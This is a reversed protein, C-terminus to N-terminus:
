LLRSWELCLTYLPTTLGHVNGRVWDDMLAITSFEPFRSKEFSSEARHTPMQQM